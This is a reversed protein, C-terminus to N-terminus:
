QQMDYMSQTSDPPFLAPLAEEEKKPAIYMQGDTIKYQRTYFGHRGNTSSSSRQYCLRGAIFKKRDWVGSWYEQWVFYLFLRDRGPSVLDDIFARGDADIGFAFDGVVKGTTGGGQYREALPTYLGRARAGADNKNPGSNQLNLTERELRSADAKMPKVWWLDVMGDELQFFSVAQMPAMSNPCTGAVAFLPTASKQRVTDRSRGRAGGETVLIMLEELWRYSSMLNTNVPPRKPPLSAQVFSAPMVRGSFERQLRVGQTAQDFEAESFSFFLEDGNLGTTDASGHRGHPTLSATSSAFSLFSERNDGSPHRFGAPQSMELKRMGLEGIVSNGYDLGDSDRRGLLPCCRRRCCGIAAGM